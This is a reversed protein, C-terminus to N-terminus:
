APLESPKRGMGSIEYRQPESSPMEHRYDRHQYYCAAENDNAHRYPDHKTDHKTDHIEALSV